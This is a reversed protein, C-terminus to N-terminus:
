PRAWAENGESSLSSCSAHAWFGEIQSTDANSVTWISPNEEWLRGLPKDLSRRPNKEALTLRLGQGLRTEKHSSVAAPHTRLFGEIQATDAGSVAWISPKERWLRGLPKDLSRRPNKEALTLRLSQWLKTEKHSSVAAPHTRLFGEIQATDAGSVAWISPKERWIRGM